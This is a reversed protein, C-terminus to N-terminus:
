PGTFLAQCSRARRGQLTRKEILQDNLFEYPPYDRVPDIRYERMFDNIFKMQARDTLGNTVAGSKLLAPYRKLYRNLARVGRKDNSLFGSNGQPNTEVIMVKQNGSKDLVIAADIGMPMMRLEVPLKEVFKQVENEVLAIEAPVIPLPQSHAYDYREITSRKEVNQDALGMFLRGDGDGLVRGGIVEVRYEKVINMREQVIAQTPDKLARRIRWGRYGEHNRILRTIVDPNEGAARQMRKERYESFNSNRYIEIERNLDLKDSILFDKQTATDWVGKIVWGDPFKENLVRQIELPTMKDTILDALRLTLPMAGPSYKEWFKAESFKQSLFEALYGNVLGPNYKGLIVDRQKQLTHFVVSESKLVFPKEPTLNEPVFIVQSDRYAREILNQNELNSIPDSNKTNWIMIRVLDPNSPDSSKLAKLRNLDRTMFGTESDIEPLGRTEAGNAIPSYLFGFFAVIAFLPAFLPLLWNVKNRHSRM